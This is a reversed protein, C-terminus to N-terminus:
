GRVPRGAQSAVRLWLVSTAVIAAFGLLSWLAISLGFVKQVQACNGTGFTMAKLVDSFPFVEFMYGLDPGCAPVADPPLSQLYLQRLAFGSGVASALAVLIPYARRAPNDALAVCGGVGALMVWIRQMLCLPCPDLGLVHEMFQAGSSLGGALALAILAYGAATV